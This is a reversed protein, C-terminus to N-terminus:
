GEQKFCGNYIKEVDKETLNRPNSAFLRDQKMGGEVMKPVDKQSIGHDILNKSINVTKLLKEVAKVSKYAAEIQSCREINEGMAKAIKAYKEYCGPCNYKMVHPLMIANSKGHPMHYETGLVYSLGHVAGLGGSTFALGALNAALLMHYRAKINSGKAYAAPLNHAILEIAELALIKSYPTANVSVYSEIAHALADLGTDATVVPPMTITLTPDLLAVDAMLHNSYVVKKTNDEEDTVVLVRTVESGSGATTPILIKPFGKRPLVDMGQYDLIKGGISGVASAGKAVDLASGGGFGIILDYGKNRILEACTDVVRVPPEPEVGDFVGTEIDAEQLVKEVREVLGAAVLGPDTVILVKGCGLASVERGLENVAGEGLILKNPSFYVSVKATDYFNNGM